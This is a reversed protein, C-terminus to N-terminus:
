KVKLLSHRGHNEDHNHRGRPPFRGQVDPHLRGEPPQRRDRGSRRETCTRREAQRREALESIGHQFMQAVTLGFFDAIKGLDKMQVGRSSKLIKSIWPPKHGCWAALAGHDIGRRYLLTRINEALLFEARLTRKVCNTTAYEPKGGLFNEEWLAQCTNDM